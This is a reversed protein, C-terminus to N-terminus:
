NGDPKVIEFRSSLPTKYDEVKNPKAPNYQPADAAIYNKLPSNSHRLGYIVAQAIENAGFNNFHTNDELKQNQGPFYNAPYHVFAIRSGDTGWAEYMLTSLKTLDILVVGEKEAVKRMAEPFDGHTERLKDGEFARRQTPTILIPIGQNERIRQIFDILLNSYLGWAGNGEGKIKEDNHGFEIIVFDEPKIQSLIKDIRSGKFSSLSAGSSAQNSVSINENLYATIFQGWSAWPEVDQNTVTSDGALYLTRTDPIEVITIEHITSTGLFELTLKYDWDLKVLERDKLGVKYEETIQPNYVSVTFTKTVRNDTDIQYNSLFLRKSEAKLTMETNAGSMVVSVKYTGEPLDTSFYVPANATFGDSNVAVRYATGFDFGYGSEEGYPQPSNIQTGSEAVSETGFQYHYDITNQAQLVSFSFLIGFLLIKM